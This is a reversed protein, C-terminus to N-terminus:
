DDMVVVRGFPPENYQKVTSVWLVPVDPEEGYDNCCMDTLMIICQLDELKDENERVWEFVSAFRTGGGGVPKLAIDDEPGFTQHGQCETDFYIVDIRKPHLEDHIKQIESCLQFLEKDSISGSVDNADLIAGLSEGSPSPVYIKQALFRRNMRAYSRSDDKSRVVFDRLVDRWNVKSELSELIERIFNGMGSGSTTSGFMKSAQAAQKVVQKAWMKDEKAQAEDAGNPDVADFPVNGHRDKKPQGDGQGGGQAQGEGEGEGGQGESQGEEEKQQQKLLKYVGTQTNGGEDCLENDLLSGHILHGVGGQKLMRNIIYDSARNYLDLDGASRLDLHGAAACDRMNQETMLAIHMVEHALLFHREFLSFKVFNIPNIYLTKRSVAAAWCMLKWEVNLNLMITSIFPETTIIRSKTQPLKQIAVVKDREFRAELEDMSDFVEMDTPNDRKGTYIPITPKGDETFRVDM